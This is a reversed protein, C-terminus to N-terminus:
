RLYSAREKLITDRSHLKQMNRTFIRLLISWFTKIVVFWYRQSLIVHLFQSFESYSIQRSKDKGFYLRVFEGDMDFPIRQHLTTQKMVNEFNDLILFCSLYITQMRKFCIIHLYYWLVSIRLWQYWIASICYPVTCWASMFTGWLSPIRPFIYAQQFLNTFSPRTQFFTVTIGNNYNGM